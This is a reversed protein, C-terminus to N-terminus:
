NWWVRKCNPTKYPDYFTSSPKPISPTPCRHEGLDVALPKLIIQYYFLPADLPAKGARNGLIGENKIIKPLSGVTQAFSLNQYHVRAAIARTKGQSNERCNTM